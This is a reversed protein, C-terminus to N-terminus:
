NQALAPQLAAIVTKNAMVADIIQERTMGDYERAIGDLQKVARECAAAGEELRNTKVLAVCLATANVIRYFRNHTQERTRAIAIAREYRGSLVARSSAYGEFVKMELAAQASLPLSFSVFLAVILLRNKM